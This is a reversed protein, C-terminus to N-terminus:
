EEVNKRRQHLINVNGNPRLYINNVNKFYCKIINQQKEVQKNENIVLWKECLLDERWTTPKSFCSGSSIRVGCNVGLKRYELVKAKGTSRGHKRTRARGWVVHNQLGCTRVSLESRVLIEYYIFTEKILPASIACDTYCSAVPQFVSPDSNSYRYPWFNERRWM